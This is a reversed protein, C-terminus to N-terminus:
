WNYKDEILKIAQQAYFGVEWNEDNVVNQLPQIADRPLYELLLNVAERRVLVRDDELAKYIHPLGLETNIKMMSALAISVQYWKGNEIREELYPMIQVCGLKSLALLVQDTKVGARPNEIMALLDKEAEHAQLNGLAMVASEVVGGVPHSLCNMIEPIAQKLKYKSAAQIAYDQVDTNPDQILEILIPHTQIGMRLLQDFPQLSRYRRSQPKKIELMLHDVKAQDYVENEPYAKESSFDVWFLSLGIFILTYIFVTLGVERKREPRSKRILFRMPANILKRLFAPIPFLFPTKDQYKKYDAGAEKNMKIEELISIGIIIMTSLLWPLTSYWGWSKKMHNLSPGYLMLGYSWIIWGLYQPHRSYKYIWHQATKSKQYRTQLWAFVGQVFIFAGLIMFFYILFRHAYWNFLGFFEMLAWYPILVVTGLDFIITSLDMFPFFVVNLLGLGALYFMSHAFTAFVPLFLGIGGLLAWGSKRTTFGLIIFLVILGLSIYGILRIAYANYFIEVRNANQAPDFHPTKILTQLLQDILQPIETFAFMLGISFVLALIFLGTDRIIKSKM